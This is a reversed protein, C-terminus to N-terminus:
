MEGGQTKYIEKLFSRIKESSVTTNICPENLIKNFIGYVKVPFADHIGSMLDRKCAVAAVLDPKLEKIHKRALTGGTAIRVEIPFEKKMSLLEGIVCQGCNKCNEINSTVKYKQVCHPLLILLKKIDKEKLSAMVKKNNYNLFKVAINNIEIEKKKRDVFLFLLYYFDYVIKRFFNSSM